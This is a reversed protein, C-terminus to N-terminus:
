ASAVRGSSTTETGMLWMAAGVMKKVGTELYRVGEEPRQLFWAYACHVPVCAPLVGICM